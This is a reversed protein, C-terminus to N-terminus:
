NKIAKLVREVIEDVTKHDADITIDAAKKYLPLRSSLLERIKALPDPVNLLPRQTQKKVDHYISEPSANLFLVIGNKKLDKINDPNLVIGGGGDIIVNHKKSIEKILNRELDRFYSEGSDAFIEEITRGEEKLIMADTSIVKRKLIKSLKQASSSKGSGMFGILIINKDHINKQMAAITVYNFPRQM